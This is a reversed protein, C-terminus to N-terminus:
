KNEKVILTEVEDIVQLLEPTNSEIVSKPLHKHHPHSKIKPFHPVNDYRFLLQKKKDM